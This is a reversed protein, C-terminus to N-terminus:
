KMEFKSQGLAWWHTTCDSQQQNRASGSISTVLAHAHPHPLPVPNVEFARFRARATASMCVDDREGCVSLTAGCNGWM